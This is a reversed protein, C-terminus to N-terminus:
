VHDIRLRHSFMTQHVKIGCIWPYTDCDICDCFRESGSGWAARMSFAKVPGSDAACRACLRANVLAAMCHTRDISGGSMYSMKPKHHLVITFRVREAGGECQRM